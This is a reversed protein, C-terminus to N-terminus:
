WSKNGKRNYTEPYHTVMISELAISKALLGQDKEKGNDLIVVSSFLTETLKWLPQVAGKDMDWTRGDEGRKAMREELVENETLLIINRANGELLMKDIILCEDLLKKGDERQHYTSMVWETALFRDCVVIEDKEAWEFIHTLMNAFESTHSRLGKKYYEAPYGMKVLEEVVMNSTSSKGSGRPGDIIVVNSLNFHKM